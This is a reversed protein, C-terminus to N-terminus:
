VYLSFDTIPKSCWSKSHSAAKDSINRSCKTLPIM